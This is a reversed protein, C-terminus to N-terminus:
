GRLELSLVCRSFHHSGGRHHRGTFVPHCLNAVSNCGGLPSQHDALFTASPVRRGGVRHGGDRAVHHRGDTTWEGELRSAGHSLWAENIMFATIILLPWTWLVTNKPHHRVRALAIALGFSLVISITTFQFVQTKFFVNLAWEGTTDALAWPKLILQILRCVGFGVTGWYSAQLTETCARKQVPDSESLIRLVVLAYVVGGIAVSLTILAVGDLLGSIFELLDTM